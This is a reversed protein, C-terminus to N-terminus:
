PKRGSFALVLALMMLSSDSGSDGGGLSLGGSSGGIGSVLLL